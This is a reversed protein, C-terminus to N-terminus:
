GRTLMGQLMRESLAHRPFGKALVATDRALEKSAVPTRTCGTLASCETAM